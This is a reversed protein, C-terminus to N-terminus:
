EKVLEAVAEDESETIIIMQPSKTNNEKDEIWQFVSWENILYMMERNGFVLRIGYKKLAEAIKM